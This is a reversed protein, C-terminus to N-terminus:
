PTEEASLADVADILEQAGAISGPVKQLPPGWARVMARWSKAAKVVPEYAALRARLTEVEEPPPNKTARQVALTDALGGERRCPANLSHCEDRRLCAPFCLYHIKATETSM